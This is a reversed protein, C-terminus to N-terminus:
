GGFFAVGDNIFQESSSVESGPPYRGHLAALLSADRCLLLPRM